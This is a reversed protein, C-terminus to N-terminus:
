YFFDPEKRVKCTEYLRTMLNMMSQSKNEKAQFECVKICAACRICLESNIQLPDIKSIAHTPCATVCKMCRTCLKDNTEPVDFSLPKREKYPVHGPIACESSKICFSEIKAAIKQGFDYAIQLDNKDPRGHAIPYKESSFSHEGIFAGSAIVNFGKKTMLMKLELLADEYARNGYVVIIVAPTGNGNLKDLRSYVVEPIRGGYVPVGVIFLELNLDSVSEDINCYTVDTEKKEFASFGNGISNVVKETTHTPSFYICQVSKM